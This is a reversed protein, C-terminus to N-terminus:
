QRRHRNDCGYYKMQMEPKAKELYQTSNQGDHANQHEDHNDHVGTGSCLLKYFPQSIAHASQLGSSWKAPTATALTKTINIVTMRRMTIKKSRAVVPQVGLSLVM